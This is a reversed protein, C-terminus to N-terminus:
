PTSFDTQCHRSSLWYALQRSFLDTFQPEDQPKAVFSNAGAQYSMLVDAQTFALSYVLMPLARTTRNSRLKRLVALGDLKPLQLDLLILCPLNAPNVVALWDLAADANVIVQLDCQPSCVTAAQRALEIDSPESEVFLITHRTQARQVLARGIAVAGRSAM